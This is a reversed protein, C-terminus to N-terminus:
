QGSGAARVDFAFILEQDRLFLRGNAVVPHTWIHGSKRKLKTQQPIKFRGHEKWGDPSPEILV